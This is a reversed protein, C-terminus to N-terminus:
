KWSATRDHVGLRDQFLLGNLGIRVLDGTANEHVTKQFYIQLHSLSFPKRFVFM